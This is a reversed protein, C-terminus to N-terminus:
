RRGLKFCLYNKRKSTDSYIRIERVGNLALYQKLKDIGNRNFLAHCKKTMARTFGLANLMGKPLEGFLTQIFTVFVVTRRTIKRKFVIELQEYPVGYADLDIINFRALDLEGLFKRNDGCLYIGPQGKKQEIRLVNIKRDPKRKKITEWIRGTGGFCDLVSCAGAPLNDIRLKVKTEFFSNDTRPVKSM